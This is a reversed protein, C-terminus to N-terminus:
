LKVIHWVKGVNDGTIDGPKVDTAYYYLPMGKYAYQNTGDTRKVITINEPLQVTADASYIPWAKVCDAYCNSVGATDKDFTYLTMGKLDTMYSGVSSDTKQMYINNSINAGSQTAIPASSQQTQSSPYQQNNSYGGNKALVFYYILGYIIGGIVVYIFVWQWLPRKGYGYSKDSNEAM